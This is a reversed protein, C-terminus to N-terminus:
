QNYGNNNKTANSMAASVAMEMITRTACYPFCLSSSSCEWIVVLEMATARDAEMNTYADRDAEM